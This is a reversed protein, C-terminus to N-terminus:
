SRIKSLESKIFFCDMLVLKHNKVAVNRPSIEFEIDTGYNACADLAGLLAAQTSKRKIKSEFLEYWFSYLDHKNCPRPVNILARLEKYLVYEGSDLNNKLSTVRPYYEMTYCENEYDRTVVPFLRSDPFWGHAMCEKIPDSSFLTVTKNDSNLYCKTFAGKGILKM